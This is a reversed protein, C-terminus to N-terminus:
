TSRCDPLNQAWIPPEPARWGSAAQSSVDIELLRFPQGRTARKKHRIADGEAQLCRRRSTRPNRLFTIERKM